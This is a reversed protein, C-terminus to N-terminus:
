VGDGWISSPLIINPRPWAMVTASTPAPVRTASRSMLSAQNACLAASIHLFEAYGLAGVGPRTSAQVSRVAIEGGKDTPMFQALEVQIRQHGLPISEILNVIGDRSQGTPTDM